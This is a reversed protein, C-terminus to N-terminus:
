GRGKAPTLRRSLNRAQFAPLAFAALHVDAGYYEFEFGSERVRAPDFDGTPCLDGTSAFTFSWLGGPYTLNSYNYIRVREFLDGLISVMSRQREAEYFPSEAQSVVVGGPALVRRVNGYFEPGFLPTAPGIPDTSDVIVLDYREDTEAVFAVGDAISVEVRPDALAASTQPIHKKCGEVVAPDIEVLRCHEVSPHRLIERVTGGDGGGIVLARKVCPHVFLAPHVIMEHYVFEDRESIMVVGDNFLMKGYGESEVIDIRQFESEESFLTRRVRYRLDLGADHREEAWLSM